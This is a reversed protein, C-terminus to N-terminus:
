KIRSDFRIQSLIWSIANKKTDLSVKWGPLCWINGHACIYNVQEQLKNAQCPMPIHLSPMRFKGYSEFTGQYNSGMQRHRYRSLQANALSAFMEFFMSLIVYIVLPTLQFRNLVM